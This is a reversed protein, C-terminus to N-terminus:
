LQSLVQQGGRYSHDLLAGTPKPGELEGESAVRDSSDILRTVAPSTGDVERKLHDIVDGNRNLSDELFPYLHYSFFSVEDM